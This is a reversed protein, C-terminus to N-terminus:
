EGETHREAKLIAAPSIRIEHWVLIFRGNVWGPPHAIVQLVGAVTVEGGKDLLLCKPIFATREIDDSRAGVVTTGGHTDAPCSVVFTSRVLQGDLAFAQPLTIRDLEIEHGVIAPDSLLSVVLLIAHMTPVTPM